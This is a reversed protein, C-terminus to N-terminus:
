PLVYIFAESFYLTLTNLNDCVFLVESQNKSLADLHKKKEEKNWLIEGGVLKGSVEKHIM